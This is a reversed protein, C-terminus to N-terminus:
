NDNCNIPFRVFIFLWPDKEYDIVHIIYNSGLQCKIFLILSTLPMSLATISLLKLIIKM